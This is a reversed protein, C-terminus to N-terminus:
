IPPDDGEYLDALNKPLPLGYGGGPEHWILDGRKAPKSCYIEIGVKQLALFIAQIADIGMAHGVEERDPWGITYSCKYDDDVAVPQHIEVKVHHDSGLRYTRSAITDKNM